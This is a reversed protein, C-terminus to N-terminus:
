GHSAEKDFPEKVHGSSGGLGARPGFGSRLRQGQFPDDSPRPYSPLTAIQDSPIGKVGVTETSRDIDVQEIPVLVENSRSARARDPTLGVELFQVRMASVDAILHAVTGVVSGDPAVVRWGRVDPEGDAVELGKQEDLRAVVVQDDDGGPAAGAGPTGDHEAHGDYDPSARVAARSLRVQVTAGEWSVADVWDPAILVRRGGIWNSTDVVLYRIAWSRDDILFDDIHGIQGDTALIHHGRVASADRLHSDDARAGHQAQALRDEVGPTLVPYAGAGWLGPGVWYYPYGYYRHYGIEHQRSVPRATDIPPSNKVQERSLSVAVAQDAWPTERVAFPSILVKQGLLWSGTQVVLYRVAWTEDDFYATSVKGIDGDTACITHGSLRSLSKLM